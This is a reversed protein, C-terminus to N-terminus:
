SKLAAPKSTLRASVFGFVHLEELLFRLGEQGRQIKFASMRQWTELSSSLSFPAIVM